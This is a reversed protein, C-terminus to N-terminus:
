DAWKPIRAIVDEAGIRAALDLLATRHAGTWELDDTTERIPVDRALVILDRYLLAESYRDSLTKALRAAGRVDISWSDSDEPIAEISGYASLVAATSVRGWGALGPIGDATDGVLALLDPIQAPAVGWKERIADENSVVRNVRDLMVVRDGDVCQALDKDRTCIVVQSVRADASYRHAATALADDAEYRRIMPWIVLGLTRAIEAALVHQNWPGDDTAMALPADVITDFSVAVHTVDDSRLLAAM